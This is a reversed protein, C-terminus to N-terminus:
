RWITITADLVYLSIEELKAWESTGNGQFFLEANQDYLYYSGTQNIDLKPIMKAYLYIGSIFIVGIFTIIIMFKVIKKLFKM